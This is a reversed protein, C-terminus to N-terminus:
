RSHGEVARMIAAGNSTGIRSAGAKIMKFMDTATKIGGSAKVGLANGALYKLLRVDSAKAGGAFGTSTKVFDAGAKKVLKCATIKEKKTLLGTEIIVKLVKGRSVARTKKIGDLVAAYKGSKLAGLDLVLDIEDAGDKLAERAQLAKIKATSAGLPFDVVSCLKM